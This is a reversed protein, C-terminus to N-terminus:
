KTLFNKLERLRENVHPQFAISTTDSILRDYEAQRTSNYQYRDRDLFHKLQKEYQEQRKWTSHRLQTTILDLQTRSQAYTDIRRRTFLKNHDKINSQASQMPRKGAKYAALELDIM